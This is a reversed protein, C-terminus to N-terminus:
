DFVFSKRKGNKTPYERLRIVFDLNIVSTEGNKEIVAANGTVEKLVGDVTNSTVTNILVDKGIYRRALEEM